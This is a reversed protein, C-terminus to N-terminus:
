FPLWSSPRSAGAGERRMRGAADSCIEKRTLCEGESEWPAWVPGRRRAPPPAAALASVPAWTGSDGVKCPSDGLATLKGAGECLEWGTGLCATKQRMGLLRLADWGRAHCVLLPPTRWCPTEAVGGSGLLVPAKYNGDTCHWNMGRLSPKGPYWGGWKGRWCRRMGLPSVWPVATSAWPVVVLSQSM